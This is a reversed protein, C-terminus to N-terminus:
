ERPDMTKADAYQNRLALSQDYVTEPKEFVTLNEPAKQLLQNLHESIGEPMGRERLMKIVQDIPVNNFFGRLDFEYVNRRPIVQTVFAKLGTKTGVSPM